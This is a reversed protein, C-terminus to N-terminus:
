RKRKPKPKAKAKVKAKAVTKTPKAATKVVAKVVAKPATAARTAHEHFAHWQLAEGTNLHRLWDRTLRRVTPALILLAILNPILML